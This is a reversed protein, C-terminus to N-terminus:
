MKHSFPFFFQVHVNQNLRAYQVRNLWINGDFVCVSSSVVNVHVCMEANKTHVTHCMLYLMLAM